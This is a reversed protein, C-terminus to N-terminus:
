FNNNLLKQNFTGGSGFNQRRRQHCTDIKRKLTLLPATSIYQMTNFLSSYETFISFLQKTFKTSTKAM